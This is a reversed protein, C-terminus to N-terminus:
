ERRRQRGQLRQMWDEDAQRAAANAGAQQAATNAGAQRAASNVGTQRAASSEGAQGAAANEGVEREVGEMEGEQAQAQPRKEGGKDEPPFEELMEEVGMDPTKPLEDHSVLQQLNRSIENPTMSENKPDFGDQQVTEKDKGKGEGGNQPDVKGQEWEKEEKEWHLKAQSADREEDTPWKLKGDEGRVPLLKATNEQPITGRVSAPPVPAPISRTTSPTASPHPNFPHGTIPPVAAPISPSIPPTLSLEPSSDRETIPPAAAASPTTSPSSPEKSQPPSSPPPPKNAIKWSRTQPRSM